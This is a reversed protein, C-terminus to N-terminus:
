KTTRRWVFYTSRQKRLDGIIGVFDGSYNPDRNLVISGGGGQKTMVFVSSQLSTTLKPGRLQGSICFARYDLKVSVTPQTYGISIVTRGADELRQLEKLWAEGAHPAAGSEITRTSQTSTAANPTVDIWRVPYMTMM